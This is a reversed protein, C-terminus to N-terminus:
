NHRKPLDYFIGKFGTCEFLFKPNNNTNFYKRFNETKDSSGGRAAQEFEFVANLIESLSKMSDNKRPNEIWGKEILNGFLEALQKQNGKWKLKPLDLILPNTLLSKLDSLILDHAEKKASEFLSKKTIEFDDLIEKPISYNLEFEVPWVVPDFLLLQNIVYTTLKNKEVNSSTNIFSLTQNLELGIDLLYDKYSEPQSCGSITMMIGEEPADPHIFVTYRSEDFESKLKTTLENTKHEAEQFNM